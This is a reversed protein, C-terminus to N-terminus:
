RRAESKAKESESRTPYIMSIIERVKQEKRERRAKFIKYVWQGIGFTFGLIGLIAALGTIVVHHEEIFKAVHEMM